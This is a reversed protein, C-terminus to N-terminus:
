HLDGWFMESIKILVEPSNGLIFRGRFLGGLVEYFFCIDSVSIVALVGFCSLVFLCVFLFLLM